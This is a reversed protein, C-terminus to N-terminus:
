AVVGGKTDDQELRNLEKHLEFRDSTVHAEMRRLRLEAQSLLAQTDRFDRRVNRPGGQEATRPSEGQPDMSGETQMPPEAASGNRPAEPLFIMAIFYAPIVIMPFFLAGTIAAGRVVWTQVGLYTALGACVGAIKRRQRNRYIRRYGGYRTHGAAGSKGDNGSADMTDGSEDLYMEPVAGRREYRRHKRAQRRAHRGAERELRATAEEIFRTAKNGFNVRATAALGEVAREFRHVAASLDDDRAGQSSRSTGSSRGIGDADSDSSNRDYM